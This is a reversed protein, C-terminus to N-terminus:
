TLCQAFLSLQEPNTNDSRLRILILRRALNKGTEPALGTIQPNCVPFWTAGM